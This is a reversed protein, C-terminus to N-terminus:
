LGEYIVNGQAQECDQKTTMFRYLTQSMCYNLNCKRMETIFIIFQYFINQVLHSFEPLLCLLSLLQIKLVLPFKYM